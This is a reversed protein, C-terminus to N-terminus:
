TARWKVPANTCAACSDELSFTCALALGINVLLLSSRSGIDHFQHVVGGRGFMFGLRSGQEHKKKSTGHVETDCSARKIYRPCHISGYQHVLIQYM